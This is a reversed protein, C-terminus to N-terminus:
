QTSHNKASRGQLVGNRRARTNVVRRNSIGRFVLRVIMARTNGIRSNVTGTSVILM